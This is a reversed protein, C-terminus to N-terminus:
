FARREDADRLRNVIVDAAGFCGKPKIRGDRGRGFGDIFQVRCGFGM